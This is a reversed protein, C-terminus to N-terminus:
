TSATSSASAWLMRLVWVAASNSRWFSMGSTSVSKKAFATVDAPPVPVSVMVASLTLFTM